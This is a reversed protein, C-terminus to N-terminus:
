AEGLFRKVELESYLVRRGIHTAEIEGKKTKQWLTPMSINAMACVEDRSLMRVPRAKERDAELTKQMEDRVTSRLWTEFVPLVEAVLATIAEM